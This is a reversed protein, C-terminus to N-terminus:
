DIKFIRAVFIFVAFISILILGGYGGFLLIGVWSMIDTQSFAHFEKEFYNTFLISDFDYGNKIFTYINYIGFATGAILLLWEQTNEKKQKSKHIM